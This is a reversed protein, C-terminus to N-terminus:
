NTKSITELSVSFDIKTRLSRILHYLREGIFALGIILTGLIPWMFSGGNVFFEVM